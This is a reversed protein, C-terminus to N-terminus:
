GELCLWGGQREYRGILYQRSSIRSNWIIYKNKGIKLHKSLLSIIAGRM